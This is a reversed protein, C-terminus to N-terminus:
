QKLAWHYSDITIIVAQCSCLVQPSTISLLAIHSSRLPYTTLSLPNLPHIDVIVELWNIAPTLVEEMLGEM